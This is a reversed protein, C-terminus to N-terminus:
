LRVDVLTTSVMDLSLTTTVTQLSPQSASTSQLIISRDVLTYSLASIHSASLETPPSLSPTPITMSITDPFCHLIAYFVTNFLVKNGNESCTPGSYGPHCICEGPFTCTGGINALYVFHDLCIMQCFESCHFKCCGKLPICTTCNTDPDRYGELCVRSGNGDCGYRGLSDNRALPCFLDCNESFFDYTCTVSFSLEAAAIGFFGTYNQLPTPSDSSSFVVEEIFISDILDGIVPNSPTLHGFIATQDHLVTM